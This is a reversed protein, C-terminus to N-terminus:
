RSPTPGEARTIWDLRILRGAGRDYGFEGSVRVTDGLYPSLDQETRLEVRHYDDDEVWYHRPPTHTRLVGETVVRRGNYDAQQAVLQQLTREAGAHSPASGSGLMLGLAVLLPATLNLAVNQGMHPLLLPIDEHHERLGRFAVWALPATLLVLLTAPPLQRLLVALLVAVYAALLFLGYVRVGLQPGRALILHRRGVGADAEQDPFQNMLLLNSVLFLPVTSALAPTIGYQGTLAFYVGLVMLPGFAVGPALLCLLPSRTLYRTYFVILAIGTLGLPLLAVGRRYIFWAGVAIVILLSILAVALALHAKEPHMPLTGTGGSFPTRQTRLDLGSRFDQYENLANVSIHAALAGAFALLLDPLAVSHGDHLASAWGLAVVVPVLLLFPARMPGLTAALTPNLV